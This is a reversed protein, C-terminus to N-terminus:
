AEQGFASAAALGLRWAENIDARTALYFEGGLHQGAHALHKKMAYEGAVAADFEFGEGSGAGSTLLAKWEFAGRPMAKQFAQRRLDPSIALGIKHISRGNASEGLYADTDGELRLVYLRRPLHATGDPVYYGSKSAPGPKVLGPGQGFEDPPLAHAVGRYVEVEVWPTNRLLAIRAPDKIIEAMASVHRARDPLTPDFANANLRHEPLYSFARTARLSHRWKDPDRHHHVPDSFEDRDGTEHSVLYGGAIMGKLVPDSYSQNRTVYVVTIFPDTLQKLLNTRRTKGRDGSWGVTGWTEPSWGWFSTFLVSTEDTWFDTAAATM